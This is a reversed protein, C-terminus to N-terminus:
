RFVLCLIIMVFFIKRILGLFIHLNEEDANALKMMKKLKKVNGQQFYVLSILMYCVIGAHKKSEVKFLNNLLQTFNYQCQILEEQFISVYLPTM